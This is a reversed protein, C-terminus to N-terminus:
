LENNQNFLDAIDLPSYYFVRKEYSVPLIGQAQLARRDRWSIRLIKDIQRNSLLLPILTTQQLQFEHVDREIAKKIAAQLTTYNKM